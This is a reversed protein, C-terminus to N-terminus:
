EDLKQKAADTAADVKTSAKEAQDAAAHAATAAATLKAQVETASMKPVNESIWTKLWSPLKNSMSIWDMLSDAAYGVFFATIPNNPVAFGGPLAWGFFLAVSAISYHRWGYFIPFEMITRILFTDWNLKFYDWRSEIKTGPNRIASGARKLLFIFQGVLFAFYNVLDAHLHMFENV